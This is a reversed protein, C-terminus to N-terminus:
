KQLYNIITLYQQRSQEQIDGQCLEEFIIKHVIEQNQLNPTIVQIAFQKELKHRYFDQQMTFKTGLLGVKKINDAVLKNLCANQEILNLNKLSYSKRIESAVKHM